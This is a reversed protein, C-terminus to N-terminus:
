NQLLDRGIFLLGNDREGTGKPQVANQQGRAPRLKASRMMRCVSARTLFFLNSNNYQKIGLFVKQQSQEHLTIDGYIISIALSRQPLANNRLFSVKMQEFAVKKAKEAVNRTRHVPRPSSPGPFLEQAIKSVARGRRKCFTHTNLERRMDEPRCRRYWKGLSKEDINKFLVLAARNRWYCKGLLTKNFCKSSSLREFRLQPVRKYVCVCSKIYM